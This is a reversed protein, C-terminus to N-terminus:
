LAAGDGHRQHKERCYANIRAIWTRVTRYSDRVNARFWQTVIVILPLVSFAVLALKWNLALMVIMIGALTFVDGFVTVVGSTFLDNLVDVDTTVRTMLRGVPNKDYFAIDVRQLHRYVEMRIDFMIRQGIMQMIYTQLYELAFAGVLVALFLLGVLNLGSLDGAAIYRDIAVKVLYPQVLALVSWAVIAIFAVAVHLRYPRLYGLLRRMLRADYAKGLIEEEHM